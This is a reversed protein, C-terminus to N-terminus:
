SPIRRGTIEDVSIRLWRNKTATVWPQLGTAEAELLEDLIEVEDARGHVIVSWGEAREADIEDIEFAVLDGLVAAALKTGPATRVLIAGEHILYNVPFIDPQRGVAVGIRGISHSRLLAWCTEPDLTELGTRDDISGM